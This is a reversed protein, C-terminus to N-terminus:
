AGAGADAGAGAGVGAAMLEAPARELSARRGRGPPPAGWEASQSLAFRPSSIPAPGLSGSPGGAANSQALRLLSARRTISSRRAASRVVPALGGEASSQAAAAGAGGEASSQAAAVGVAGVEEAVDLTRLDESMRDFLEAFMEQGSLRGSFPSEDGAGGLALDEDGPLILQADADGLSGTSADSRTRARSSQREVDLHLARTSGPRDRKFAEKRGSVQKFLRPRDAPPPLDM